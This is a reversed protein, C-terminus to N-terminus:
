YAIDCVSLMLMRENWSYSFSGSAKGSIVNILDFHGSAADADAYIIDFTTYGHGAADEIAASAEAANSVQYEDAPRDSLDTAPDLAVTMEESWIHMRSARDYGLNFWTHVLRDENDDWTVDVLRWTGDIRILNWMHTISNFFDSNLGVDYSDGHQYRVDLGALTGTIYFADAYGDCNAEGNLLAGIATDDEDTTEDDTYVIMEALRDHINRATELPSQGACEAALAEAARWTERERDTLASDDGSEAARRINTGPYYTVDKFEIIHATSSFGFEYQFLGAQAAIDYVPVMGSSSLTFYPNYDRMIADYVEQTCFLTFERSNQEAKKAMYANAEDLSSLKVVDTQIVANTIILAYTSFDYSMDCYTMGAEAELQTLRQFYGEYVADYLDKDLILNFSSCGAAGMDRIAQVIEDETHCVIRPVDSYVVDSFSFSRSANQQAYSCTDIASAAMMRKLYNGDKRVEEFFDPSLAIYFDEAREQAMYETAAKFGDEDNACAFARSYNVDSVRLVGDSFGYRVSLDAMGCQAGYAYIMDNVYLAQCLEPTTFLTFQRAQQAAIDAMAQKIAAEDACEAWPLVEYRVENFKFLGSQSNYHVEADSIGNQLELKNLGAFNDSRLREFLAEKCSFQFETLSNNLCHTLFAGVEEETAFPQEFDTEEQGSSSEKETEPREYTISVDRVSAVRVYVDCGSEVSLDATQISGGNGNVIIQDIWGGVNVAYWGDGCDSMPEVPWADFANQEGAWAWLCPASWNQPVQAYVTITPESAQAPIFCLGTLLLTLLLLLRKKM